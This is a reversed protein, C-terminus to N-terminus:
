QKADERGKANSSLRHKLENVAKFCRARAKIFDFNPEFVSDHSGNCVAKVLKSAAEVRDGGPLLNRLHVPVLIRYIYKYASDHFFPGPGFFRMEWERQEVFDAFAEEPWEMIVVLMKRWYNVYRDFKLIDEDSVEKSFYTSEPIENM